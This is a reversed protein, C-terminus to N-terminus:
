KPSSTHSALWALDPNGPSPTGHLIYSGSGLHPMTRFDLWRHTEAHGDAFVLAGRLRHLYSPYHIWYSHSMDVGFGPTCISAPNVDAFVFRDAPDDSAVECSKLYVKYSFLMSLPSIALDPPTGMYANLAYSRLETVWDSLPAASGGSTTWPPWTTNDAPCKYLREAPQIRTYAFLSYNQGTLYLDNTLADASGHAGGYVWLHPQASGPAMDGGNLVLRDDNDGSYITWAVLLQKENSLCQIRAAQMKAGALSPLLLAALVAIVAIVVLLEVLTFAGSFYSRGRPRPSNGAPALRAAM